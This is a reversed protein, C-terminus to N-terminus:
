SMPLAPGPQQASVLEVAQQLSTSIVAFEAQRALLRLLGIDSRISVIKLSQGSISRDGDPAAAFANASVTSSGQITLTQALAAPGYLGLAAAVAAGCALREVFCLARDWRRRKRNTRFKVAFDHPRLVSLDPRSLLIM